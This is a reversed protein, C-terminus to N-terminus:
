ASSQGLHKCGLSARYGHIMANWNFHLFISGSIIRPVSDSHRATKPITPSVRPNKVPLLFWSLSISRWKETSYSHREPRVTRAPSPAPWHLLILFSQQGFGRVSALRATQHLHSYNRMNALDM